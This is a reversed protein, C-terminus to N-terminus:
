EYGLPFWIGRIRPTSMNPSVHGQNLDRIDVDEIVRKIQPMQINYFIKRCLLNIADDYDIATVGCGIGIGAPWEFSSEIKFEFWYRKYNLNM